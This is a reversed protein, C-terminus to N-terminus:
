DHAALRQKFEQPQMVIHAAGDRHPGKLRLVGQGKGNRSLRENSRAPRTITRCLAV